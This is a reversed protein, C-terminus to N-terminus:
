IVSISGPSERCREDRGTTVRKGNGVTNRIHSGRPNKILGGESM